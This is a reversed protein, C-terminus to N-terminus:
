DDPLDSTPTALTEIFDSVHLSQHLYTITASTDTNSDTRHLEDQLKREEEEFMSQRGLFEEESVAELITTGDPKEVKVLVEAQGEPKIIDAFDMLFPTASKGEEKDAMKEVSYEGEFTTEGKLVRQINKRFPFQLRESYPKEHTGGHVDIDSYKAGSGAGHSVGIVTPYCTVGMFDSKEKHHRLMAGLGNDFKDNFPLMSMYLLIKEAGALSVAYATTCANWESAFCIRTNNGRDPHPSDWAQWPKMDPIWAGGRVHPVIVTPDHPIVWRRMDEKWAEADCHGITLVDWGDGYPSPSSGNQRLIYRSAKAYQVLQYRLSVDWDADDEFIIASQLNNQVVYRLANLHARWSGIASLSQTKYTMGMPLAKEPVDTGVIGDMPLYTINSLRTMVSFADQRDGRSPLSLMIVKEFGLTSNFVDHINAQDLSYRITLNYSSDAADLAIPATTNSLSETINSISSETANIWSSEFESKLDDQQSTENSGSPYVFNDQNGHRQSWSPMHLWKGDVASKFSASEIPQLSLQIVTVLVFLASAIGVITKTKGAM